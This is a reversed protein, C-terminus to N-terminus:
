MTGGQRRQRLFRGLRTVRPDDEQAWVPGTEVEANSRMTRFKFMKFITQDKGVRDQAFFIPGESDIKILVAIILFLPSLFILSLAAVSFDFCRKFTQYKARAFGSSEPKYPCNSWLIRTFSACNLKTKALTM